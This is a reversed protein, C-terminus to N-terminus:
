QTSLTKIMKSLIRFISQVLPTLKDLEGPKLYELDVCLHFAADLELLSGRAIEYFRKRDASTKRSAGEVFNLLVSTAARKIQRVMEYHEDTPLM